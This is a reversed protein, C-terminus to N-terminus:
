DGQQFSRLKALAEPEIPTGKIIVMAQQFHRRKLKRKPLKGHTGARAQDERLCNLAASVCLNKLDSGSFGPTRKAIEALDIGSSDEGRLLIQLIRARMHMNPLDLFIRVPVRRLVATDLDSPRNTALLFFPGKGPEKAMGDWQGLFENLQTRQWQKDSGKRRALLGDAEDLFVVCPSLKRALSFLGRVGKESEGVCSEM